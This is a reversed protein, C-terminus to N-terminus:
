VDPDRRLLYCCTAYPTKAISCLLLRDCACAYLFLWSWYKRDASESKREWRGEAGSIQHRRKKPYILIRKLAIVILTMNVTRMVIGKRKPRRRNRFM